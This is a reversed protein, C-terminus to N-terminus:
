VAGLHIRTFTEDEKIYPESLDAATLVPLYSGDNQLYVVERRDVLVDCEWKEYEYLM